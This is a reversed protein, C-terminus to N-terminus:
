LTASATDSLGFLRVAAPVIWFVTVLNTIMGGIIIAAIGRYVVSAESPFLLLPLMGLITTLSSILVARFREISGNEIALILESGQQLHRKVADVLLIANNAIVGLMVMFGILTLVNFDVLSIWNLLCYGSVGGLLAPPLSVLVYLSDTTSKFIFAVIIYFALFVFILMFWLFQKAKDLSAASGQVSVFGRDGILQELEPVVKNNLISITDSITFVDSTLRINISVAPVGNIRYPSPHVDKERIEMLEGVYTQQGNATVYPFGALESSGNGITIIADLVEGNHNWKGIYESTGLARVLNKLADDTVAMSLINGLLPSFEYLTKSSEINPSFRVSVENLHTNLIERISKAHNVLWSQDAVYLNVKIDNNSEVGGLLEGQIVIIRKDPIREKLENQLFTIVDTNKENNELRVAGTVFSNWGIAYYNKVNSLKDVEGLVESLPRVISQEIKEITDGGSLPIFVDVADRKVSPLYGVSPFLLAIGGISVLLFLVCVLASNNRSRLVKFIFVLYGPTHQQFVAKEKVLYRRAFFPTIAVTLLLAIVLGSVIAMSLGRFLQGEGGDSFIVPLFVIVTTLVSASLAPVLRNLAKSVSVVSRKKEAPLKDLYEVFILVGDVFMGIAFAIGALSIINISTQTVNFIFFIGSITLLTIIGSLVTPQLSKFFVYSVLLSLIFGTLLSGIVWLIAREIFVATDFSLQIDLGASDVGPRSALLVSEVKEQVELFNADAKRLVRMAIANKGNYRAVATQIVPGIEMSAVDDLHIAVNDIYAVPIKAIEEVATTLKFQATIVKDNEYIKAVPQSLVGRIVSRVQEYSLTLQYLKDLDVHIILYADLLPNLEVTDVGKIFSLKYRALENIFRIQQASFQDSASTIFYSGVVRNSVNRGGHRYSIPKVNLPLSRARSLLDGLEKEAEDLDTGFEFEIEFRAREAETIVNVSKLHDLKELIVTEYPKVIDSVLFAETAGPWVVSFSIKPPEVNPLLQVKNNLVSIIGAIILLVIFVVLVVHLSNHARDKM